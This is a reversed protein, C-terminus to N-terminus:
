AKGKDALTAAEGNPFFQAELDLVVALARQAGDGVLWAGVAGSRGHDPRPHSLANKHTSLERLDAPMKGGIM